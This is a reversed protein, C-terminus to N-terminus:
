QLEENEGLTEIPKSEGELMREMSIIKLCSEEDEEQCADCEGLYQKPIQNADCFCLLEELYGSSQAKIKSLPESNVFPTLIWKFMSFLWPTEILLYHSWMLPYNKEDNMFIMDLLTFLPKHAHSIGLGKASLVFLFRSFKGNSKEFILRALFERSYIAFRFATENSYRELFPKPSVEAIREWVVPMGRNDVGHIELPWEKHLTLIDNDPNELVDNAGFEDRWKLCRLVREKATPHKMEEGEPNKELPERVAEEEREIFRQLWADTGIWPCQSPFVVESGLEERLVAVKELDVIEESRGHLAVGYIGRFGMM